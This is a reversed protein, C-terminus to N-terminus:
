TTVSFRRYSLLQQFLISYIHFIEHHFPLNVYRYSETAVNKFTHFDSPSSAIFERVEGINFHIFNQEAKSHLHFRQIITYFKINFSWAMESFNAFM